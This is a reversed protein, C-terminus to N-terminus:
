FPICLMWEMYGGIDGVHYVYCGDYIDDCVVLITYIVDM